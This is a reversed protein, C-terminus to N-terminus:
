QQSGDEDRSNLWPRAGLMLWVLQRTFELAAIFCGLTLAIKVPYIPFQLQSSAIERISVSHMMMKGGELGMIVFAFIGAVLTLVEALVRMFPPMSGLFIDVRVHAHRYQIAGLSLFIILVHGAAALEIASPIPANRLNILIVDLTGLLAVLLVVVSSVVLTAGALRIIAQDVIQFLSKIM